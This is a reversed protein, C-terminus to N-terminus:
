IRISQKSYKRRQM